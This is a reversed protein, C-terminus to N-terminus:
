KKELDVAQALAKLTPSIVVPVQPESKLMALHVPLGALSASATERSANLSIPPGVRRGNQMVPKLLPSGPQLDNMLTVTDSVIRGEPDFQRYVQKRGPWTAKGESRKRCPRGAYEQLKYVTDLSPADASTALHTGVAFSDIPAGIRVLTQIRDEDLNGSALIKIQLLGASDFIKRVAPALQALDGSDLRVGQIMIGKERLRPALAVVKEAAAVTDYTDLLLVVHDPRIDAFHEFAEQEDQHSQVFSHAMTGYTPIGFQFGAQVTATGMLGALYGARAALLGAEAGHARRFGFDMVPKDGVALVVRSAKSAIM